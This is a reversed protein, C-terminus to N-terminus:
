TRFFSHIEHGVWGTTRCEAVARVQRQHNLFWIPLELPSCHRSVRLPWPLSRPRQFSLMLDAVSSSPYWYLNSKDCSFLQLHPTKLHKHNHQTQKASKKERLADKETQEERQMDAARNEWRDKQKWDIQTDTRRCINVNELAESFCFSKKCSDSLCPFM